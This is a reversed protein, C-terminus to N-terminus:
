TLARDSPPPQQTHYKLSYLSATILTHTNIQKDGFHSKPSNKEGVDRGESWPSLSKTHTHPLDSVLLRTMLWQGEDEGEQNKNANPGHLATQPKEFRAGGTGSMAEATLCGRDLHTWESVCKSVCFCICSLMFQLETWDQRACNSQHLTQHKKDVAVTSLSAWRIVSGLSLRLGCMQAKAELANQGTDSCDPCLCRSCEVFLLIQGMNVCVVTLQQRVFSCFMNGRCRQGSM